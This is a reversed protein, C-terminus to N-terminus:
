PLRTPESGKVVIHVDPLPVIAWTHTSPSSLIRQGSALDTVVATLDETIEGSVSPVKARALDIFRMVQAATPGQIKWEDSDRELPNAYTCGSEELLSRKTAGGTGILRGNYTSSGVLMRGTTGSVRPLATALASRLADPEAIITLSSSRSDFTYVWVGPAALAQQIREGGRGILRGGAGGPVAVAVAPLALAQAMLAQGDIAADESEFTALVQDTSLYVAQAGLRIAIRDAERVLAGRWHVPVRASVVAAALQARDMTSLVREDAAVEWTTGNSGERFADERTTQLHHSRAWFYWCDSVWARSTPNLAVLDRAAQAPLPGRRSILWNRPVEDGCEGLSLQVAGTQDDGGDAAVQPGPPFFVGPHGDLLGEVAATSLGGIPLRVVEPRVQIMLATDRGVARTDASSESEDPNAVQVGFLHVVDRSSDRLLSAVTVYGADNPGDVAAGSYFTGKAASGDARVTDLHEYRNERSAWHAALMGLITITSCGPQPRPIVHAYLPTGEVLRGLLGHTRRHLSIALQYFEAQKEPKTQAERLVFRGRGDARDFIRLTGRHDSVEPGVVVKVLDGPDRDAHVAPKWASGPPRWDVRLVITARPTSVDYGVVEYWQDDIPQGAEVRVGPRSVDVNRSARKRWDALEDVADAHSVPEFPDTCASPNGARCGECDNCALLELDYAELDILARQAEIGPDPELDVPTPWDTDLEPSADEPTANDAGVAVDDEDIAHDILADARPCEAPAISATPEAAIFAGVGDSDFRLQVRLGAPWVNQLQSLTDRTTEPRAYKSALVLLEMPDATGAAVDADDDHRPLAWGEICVINSLFAHERRDLKIRKLPLVREPQGQVMGANGMVGTPYTDSEGTVAQYVGDGVLKYQLSAMARTIAGRARRVLAPEVFRKVEEKMAPSLGELVTRRNQACAILLDHNIWWRRAWLEREASEGM